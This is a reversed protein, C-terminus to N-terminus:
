RLSALCGRQGLLPAERYRGARSAALAARCHAGRGSRTQANRKADDLSKGAASLLAETTAGHQPFLAIGIFVEAAFSIAETLGHVLRAASALVAGGDALGQAIVFFEGHEGPVIRHWFEACTSLRQALPDLAGLEQLPDSEYLPEGSRDYGLLFVVSGRGSPIQAMVASVLELCGSCHRSSSEPRSASM